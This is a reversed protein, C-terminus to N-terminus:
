VKIVRHYFIRDVIVIKIISVVYLCNYLVIQGPHRLICICDITLWLKVM